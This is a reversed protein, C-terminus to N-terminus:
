FHLRLLKLFHFWSIHIAPILLIGAAVVLSDSDVAPSSILMLMLHLFKMSNWKSINGVGSNFTLSGRWCFNEKIGGWEGFWRQKVLNKIVIELFGQIEWKLFQSGKKGGGFLIKWVRWVRLESGNNNWIRIQWCIKLYNIVM